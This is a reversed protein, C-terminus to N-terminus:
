NNGVLVSYAYWLQWFITNYLVINLILLFLFGIINFEEVYLLLQFIQELKIICWKGQTFECNHTMKNNDKNNKRDKEM